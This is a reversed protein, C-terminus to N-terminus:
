KRRWARGKGKNLNRFSPTLAHCNPCLLRLNQTSNNISDGDIHDVEIPTRRTVPNKKDWGCASCKAGRTEILYRRIHSSTNVTTVKAGSLWKTVFTKYRYDAQCQNSCFKLQWKKELAKRCAYCRNM